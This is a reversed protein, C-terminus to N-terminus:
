YIKKLDVGRFYHKLIEEALYGRHAMVGAGIQCLGVGHGWGAGHFIFRDGERTMVFASSYLHGRSLWRRIELEKGVILSRESGVIRLLSIRGSPGRRLPVIDQLIGFDIGSKERLIAELESRSYEVRWRFFDTTEHDVRSLIGKLLTRDKLNCYVKPKSHIWSSAETERRIPSYSVPGDSISGLYPIKVDEWATNFEETIGGCCKSYRADCIKNQFVMVRGSTERVAEEVGRSLEKPLGYYRQCHDQSCVDFFDHEERGYWCIIEDEKNTPTPLTPSFGERRRESRERALVWSRSLIAHAKLFERPAKENMESSIVSKLYDEVGLEHIATLTGDSRARLILDGGGFTQDERREWHFQTGLPVQFLTFTSGKIPKLRILQSRLIESGKGDRFVVYGNDVRASFRGSISSDSEFLFEGNLHGWAEAARDIIGVAIKPTKEM